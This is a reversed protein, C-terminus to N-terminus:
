QPRRIEVRRNRAHCADTDETCLPRSRGYSTARLRARPIGFGRVLEDVVAQARQQALRLNFPDTGRRDTHGAIEAIVPGASALVGLSRTEAFRDKLAFAIERIQAHAQSRLGTQNFDFPIRQEDLAVSSLVGAGRTRDLVPAITRWQVIGPPDAARLAAVYERTRQDGPDLVLGKEYWYLADDPRNMKRYVDGVGFYPLPWDSRIAIAQRYAELAEDYRALRELTDGLNNFADSSSACLGIAEKYLALRRTLGAPDDSVTGAKDILAAAAPCGNPQAQLATSLLLSVIFAVTM